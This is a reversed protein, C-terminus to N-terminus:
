IARNMSGAPSYIKVQPQVPEVTTPSTQRPYGLERTHGLLGLEGLHGPLVLEGM